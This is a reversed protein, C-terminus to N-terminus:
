GPIRMNWTRSANPRIWNLGGYEKWWRYYTPETVVWKRCLDGVKKGEGILVDAERLKHLIQEVSHKIRPM